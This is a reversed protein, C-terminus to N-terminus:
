PTLKILTYASHYRFRGTDIDKLIYEYEGAVIRRVKLREDLKSDGIDYLLEKKTKWSAKDEGFKSIWLRDESVGVWENVHLSLSM